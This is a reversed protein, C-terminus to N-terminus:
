SRHAMSNSSTSGSKPASSCSWRSTSTTPPSLNEDLVTILQKGPLALLEIKSLLVHRASSVLRLMNAASSRYITIASSTSEGDTDASEGEHGHESGDVQRKFKRYSQRSCRKAQRKKERWGLWLNTKRRCSVSSSVETGLKAPAATVM